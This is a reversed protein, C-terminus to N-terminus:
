LKSALEEIKRKLEEKEKMLNAKREQYEEESLLGRMRDFTLDTIERDIEAAREQLQDVTPEKSTLKEPVKLTEGSTQQEEGSTQEFATEKEETVEEEIGKEMEITDKKLELTEKEEAEVARTEELLDKTAEELRSFLIDIDKSSDVTVNEEAESEEVLPASLDGSIPRPMFSGKEEFSKLIEIVKELNNLLAIQQDLIKQMVKGIPDIIAKVKREIITELDEQQGSSSVVLPKLEREGQTAKLEQLYEYISQLVKSLDNLRGSSEKSYAELEGGVSDIEDKVLKISKLLARMFPEISRQISEGITKEIVERM